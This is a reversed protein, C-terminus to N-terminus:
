HADDDGTAEAAPLSREVLTSPSCTPWNVEAHMKRSSDRWGCNTCEVVRPAEAVPVPPSAFAIVREEILAKITAVMLRKNNSPVDRWPKASEQRTRYGFGPALDEYTQHFEKAIQEYRREREDDSPEAAVPSESLAARAKVMAPDGPQGHPELWAKAQRVLGQLAERLRANDARLAETPEAPAPVQSREAIRRYMAIEEQGNAIARRAADREREVDSEYAIVVERVRHGYGRSDYLTQGYVRAARQMAPTWWDESNEEGKSAPASVQEPSPRRVKRRMRRSGGTGRVVTYHRDGECFVVHDPEVAVVHRGEWDWDDNEICVWVQIAEGAILDDYDVSEYEPQEPTSVREIEDPEADYDKWDGAEGDRILRAREAEM